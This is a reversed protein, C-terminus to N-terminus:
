NKGLVHHSLLFKRFIKPLSGLSGGDTQSTQSGKKVAGQRKGELDGFNTWIRGKDGSTQTGIVPTFILSM